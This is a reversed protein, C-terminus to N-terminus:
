KVPPIHAMVKRSNKNGIIEDDNKNLELPTIITAKIELETIALM